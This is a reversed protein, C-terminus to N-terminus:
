SPAPPEPCWSRARERGRSFAGRANEYSIRALADESSFWGCEGIGEDRLPTPVGDPSEFLFLHCFKHIRRGQDQFFWDITDLEGRLILHELGTEERIERRAAQAPQEGSEVHGKPFGWNGYRDLILLYEPGNSRCRFVVGGASIEREVQHQM